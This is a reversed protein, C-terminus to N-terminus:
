AFEIASIVTSTLSRGQADLVKLEILRARPAVGAYAGQSLVGKGAILGSVHTGHGFDDYSATPVSNTFDYFSVGAFDGSLDLGSDIVAIGVSKGSASALPLRLTSLLTNAVPTSSMGPAATSAIVADISIGAVAPDNQLVALDDAAVDASVADIVAYQKFVQRGQKRLSDAVKAAQGPNTRVIVHILGPPPAQLAADLKSQSPQSALVLANAGFAALAISLGAIFRM